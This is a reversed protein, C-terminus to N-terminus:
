QTAKSNARREEERQAIEVDNRIAAEGLSTFYRAIVSCKEDYSYTGRMWDILSLNAWLAANTQEQGSVNGLLSEYVVGSQLTNVARYYAVPKGNYTM